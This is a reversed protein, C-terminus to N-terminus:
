SRFTATSRWRGGPLVRGGPVRAAEVVPAACRVAAVDAPEFAAVNLGAAVLDVRVANPDYGFGALKSLSEALIVASVVAGNLATAVRDAGPEGRVFAILASSDIVIM